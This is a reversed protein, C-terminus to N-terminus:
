SDHAPVQRSPRFGTRQDRASPSRVPTHGGDPHKRGDRRSGTTSRSRAPRPARRYAEPTPHPARARRRRKRLLRKAENATVSVLWPRLHAEDHVNGLKRWAIVWAAQTADDALARDRTIYRAVRRMDDHHEAILRRFAVEDGAAAAALVGAHQRSAMQTMAGM